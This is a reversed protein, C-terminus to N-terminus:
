NKISNKNDIIFDAYFHHSLVVGKYSVEFKKEREFPIALSKLEIELADKYVIELLGKGLIKHIEM